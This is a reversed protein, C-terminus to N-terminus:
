LINTTRGERGVARPHISNTETVSKRMEKLKIIGQCKVVNSILTVYIKKYIFNSDKNYIYNSDSCYPSKLQRLDSGSRVSALTFRKILKLAVQILASFTTTSSTFTVNRKM